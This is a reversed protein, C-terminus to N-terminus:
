YKIFLMYLHSLLSIPRYTGLNEKDGKKFTLPVFANKWKDLIAEEYMGQNYGETIKEIVLESGSIILKIIAGDDGTAKDNKMQQVVREVKCKLISPEEKALEKQILQSKDVYLAQSFEAYREVIRERNAKVFSDNEKM